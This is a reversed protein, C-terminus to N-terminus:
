EQQLLSEYLNLQQWQYANFILLNKYFEELGSGKAISKKRYEEAKEYNPERAWGKESSYDVEYKLYSTALIYRITSALPENNTKELISEFDEERENSLREGYLLVNMIKEQDLSVDEGSEDRVVELECNDGSDLEAACVAVILDESDELESSKIKIMYQLKDQFVGKKSILSQFIMPIIFEMRRCNSTMESKCELETPLIQHSLNVPEEIGELKIISFELGMNETEFKEENTIIDLALKITGLESDFYVNKNSIASLNEISFAPILNESTCSDDGCSCHIKGEFKFEGKTPLYWKEPLKNLFDNQTSSYKLCADNVLLGNVKSMMSSNGTNCKKCFNKTGHEFNFLHGLEHGILRAFLKPSRTHADYSQPGGALSTDPNFIIFAQRLRNKITPDSPSRCHHLVNGSHTRVSEMDGYCYGPKNTIVGIVHIYNDSSTGDCRISKIPPVGQQYWAASHNLLNEVLNDANIRHMYSSRISPFNQDIINFCINVNGFNKPINLHKQIDEEIVLLHKKFEDYGSDGLTGKYYEADDSSVLHVVIEHDYESADWLMYMTLMALPVGLYLFNRMYIM